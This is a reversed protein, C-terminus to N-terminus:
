VLEPSAIVSLFRIPTQILKVAGHRGEGDFLLSDGPGLRYTKEGHRYNMKGELLFIFETGPHQFTPEVPSDATLTVMLCELRRHVGRLTGLTEYVHGIQSGNRVVEAGQAATVYSVQREDAGRFLFSVPVELGRAIAAITTLSCSTLANEIKSLMARSVGIAEALDAIALGRQTRLERVNRGVAIDLDFSRLPDEAARSRATGVRNRVLAEGGSSDAHTTAPYPEAQLARAEDDDRM